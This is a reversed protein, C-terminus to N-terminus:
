VTKEEEQKLFVTLFEEPSGDFIKRTKNVYKKKENMYGVEYARISITGNDEDSVIEYRYEEGHGTSGPKVMYYGGCGKKFHAVLQAALCGTGNFTLEEDGGIQIGNVLKGRLLFNALDAGMGDPYGDMQRYMTLYKINYQKGEHNYTDIVTTLSRTGM